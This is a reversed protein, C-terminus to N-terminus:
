IPRFIGQNLGEVVESIRQIYQFDLAIYEDIEKKRKVLGVCQGILKALQIGLMDNKIEFRVM